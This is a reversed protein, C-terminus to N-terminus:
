RRGRDLMVEVAATIATMAEAIRTERDSSHADRESLQDRWTQREESHRDSIRVVWWGLAVNVALSVGLGGYQEALAVWPALAVADPM